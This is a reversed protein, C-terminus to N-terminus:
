DGHRLWEIKSRQNWMCEELEMLKNIEEMLVQVRDHDKGVMSEGKVQMLQKRKRALAIRINGFTNKDWLHFQTQYNSVKRLVKGM